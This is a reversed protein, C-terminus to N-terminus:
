LCFVVNNIEIFEKKYQNWKVKCSHQFDGTMKQPNFQEQM